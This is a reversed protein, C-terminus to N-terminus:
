TKNRRGNKISIINIKSWLGYDMNFDYCSYFMNIFCQDGPLMNKLVIQYIGEPIRNNIQIEAAAPSSM